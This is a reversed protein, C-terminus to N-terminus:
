HLDPLTLQSLKLIFHAIIFNQINHIINVIYIRKCLLIFFFTNKSM